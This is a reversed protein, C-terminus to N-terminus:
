MLKQSLYTYQLYNLCCQFCNTGNEIDILYDLLLFHTCVMGAEAFTALLQFDYEIVSGTFDLM